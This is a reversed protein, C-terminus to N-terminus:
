LGVDGEVMNAASVQEFSEDVLVLDRRSWPRIPNGAGEPERRRRSRFGRNGRGPLQRVAARRCDWGQRGDLQARRRTLGRARLGAPESCLGGIVVSQTTAHPRALLRERSSALAGAKRALDSWHRRAPARQSAFAFVLTFARNGAAVCTRDNAAVAAHRSSPARSCTRRRL